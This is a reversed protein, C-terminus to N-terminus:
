SQAHYTYSGSVTFNGQSNPWKGQNYQYDTGSTFIKLDLTTAGGPAGGIFKQNSGNATNQAISVGAKYGNSTESNFPLGSIRANSIEAEGGQTCVLTFFATVKKGIKIYYGTATVSPGTSQFMAPTWTGEEYSSLTEGSAGFRLGYGFQVLDNMQINAQTGDAISIKSNGNTILQVTNTTGYIGDNGAGLKLNPSAASGVSARLRGDADIEVKKTGNIHFEISEQDQTSSLSGIKFVGSSDQLSYRSGINLKKNTNDITLNSSVSAISASSYTAIGNATSGSFSIGSSVQQWTGDKRLFTTGSGGGLNTLAAGTALSFTTGNLALGTGASYTAGTPTDIWSLQGSSDSELIKDNGGPGQGPFTLTLDQTAGAQQALKLFRTNASNYLQIDSANSGDGYMVLQGRTPSAGGKGIHIKDADFRLTDSGAFSSGNKYQFQGDDGQPATSAPTNIWGLNGSTTYQLVQNNAPASSPFKLTYNASGAHAPGELTIAHSDQECNLKLRGAPNGNGQGKIVATHKVTLINNNYLFDGSGGFTEGDKYQVSHASGGPTGSGGAANIEINSGVPNLTVNTGGTITVAGTLTNFSSVGSASGGPLSSVKIQKTAFQPSSASDSILILDDNAPTGKIPYSYIISM